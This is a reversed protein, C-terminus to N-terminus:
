GTRQRKASGGPLQFRLQVKANSAKSAEMKAEFDKLTVIAEGGISLLKWQLGLGLREGQSAAPIEQCVLDESFVAGLPESADMLLEQEKADEAPRKFGRWSSSASSAGSSKLGKIKAVLEKSNSLTEGNLTLLRWGSVIGLKAGQANEKVEKAELNDRFGIGLPQSLDLTVTVEMEQVEPEKEEEKEDVSVTEPAMFVATVMGAGEQKLAQIKAVLEATLKFTEGALSVARWGPQVGLKASQSGPSVSDAELFKNFLIGLPQSIDLELQVSRMNQKAEEAERELMAARERLLAAAQNAGFERAKSALVPAPQFMMSQGLSGESKFVELKKELEKQSNLEDGALGLAQWGKDIGLRAAQSGKQVSEVVLRSGWVIGLPLSLDIDLDVPPLNVLPGEDVPEEPPPAPMEEDPVPHLVGTVTNPLGRAQEFHVTLPTDAKLLMDRVQEIKFASVDTGGVNSLLAGPRVGQARTLGNSANVYILGLEPDDKAVTFGFPRKAFSAVIPPPAFVMTVEKSGETKLKSIRDKLESSKQLKVGGIARVRWNPRIGLEFAQGDEPVTRTVLNDSFVCGLPRRLDVMVMVGRALQDVTARLMGKTIEATLRKADVEEAKRELEPPVIGNYTEIARQAQGKNALRVFAIAGWDASKLKMSQIDGVESFIAELDQESIWGPLGKVYLNDSPPPNEGRGQFKVTIPGLETKKITSKIDMAAAEELKEFAARYKEHLSEEEAMHKPLPPVTAVLHKLVIRLRQHGTELQEQAKQVFQVLDKRALRIEAAAKPGYRSADIGDVQEVNKQLEELSGKVRQEAQKALKLWIRAEEGQANRGGMPSVVSSGLALAESGGRILDRVNGLVRHITQHDSAMGILTLSGDDEIPGISRFVLHAPKLAKVEGDPLKVEWRGSGEDRRWLTCTQGNLEGAKLGDIAAVDGRALEIPPLSKEEPPKVAEPEAQAQEAGADKATEAMQFAVPRLFPWDPSPSFCCKSIALAHCRLLM